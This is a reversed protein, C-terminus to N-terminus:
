TTAESAVASRHADFEHPHAAILRRVAIYWQRSKELGDNPRDRGKARMDAINEAATGTFLHAPRVCLPTDCAHCVQLGDPIAGNALEYSLRHVYVRRGQNQIYGYGDERKNTSGSWLWCPGLEPRHAPVPGDKNVRAWFRAALAEATWREAPPRRNRQRHEALVERTHVRCYAQLGDRASRNRNFDVVPRQAKCRPCWKTGTLRATATM